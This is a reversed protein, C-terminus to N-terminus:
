LKLVEIKRLHKVMESFEEPNLSINADICDESIKFHKEIIFKDKSTMMTAVIPSYIGITHDSFGNIQIFHFANFSIEKLETPYYPVCYLKDFDRYSEDYVDIPSISIIVRKGTAKIKNILEINHRDKHRIKYIQMGAKECMDVLSSHMVSAFVTIGIEKGYDILEKLSEFNLILPILKKKLEEDYDKLVELNFVQFKALDAGCKKAEKIMQKAQDLNSWNCGCEAIIEVKM